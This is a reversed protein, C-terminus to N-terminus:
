RIIVVRLTWIVNQVKKRRKEIEGAIAFEIDVILWIDPLGKPGIVYCEGCIKAYCESYEDAKVYQEICRGIMQHIIANTM